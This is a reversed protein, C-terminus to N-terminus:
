RGHSMEYARIMQHIRRKIKKVIKKEWAAIQDEHCYGYLLLLIALIELIIKIM